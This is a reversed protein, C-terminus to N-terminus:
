EFRGILNNLAYLPLNLFNEHQHFNLPSTRISSKPHYKEQYLHLSKKKRNEGSKVELPYFETDIPLVFDVEAAPGNAWYFLRNNFLCALANAM